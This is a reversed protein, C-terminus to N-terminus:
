PSLGVPGIAYVVHWYQVGTGVVTFVTRISGSPQGFAYGSADMAAQSNGHPSIWSWWHGALVYGNGLSFKATDIGLNLEGKSNVHHTAGFSRPGTDTTGGMLGVNWPWHCDDYDTGTCTIQFDSEELKVVHRTARFATAHTNGLKLASTVVQLQATQDLVGSVAPLRASIAHDYWALIDLKLHGGPFNGVLRLEGAQTGFGCGNVILEEGPEVPLAASLAQIQPPSCGPAQLMPKLQAALSQMALNDQVLQAQAQQLAPVTDLAPPASRGPPKRAAQQMLQDVQAQSLAAPDPAAALAPTRDPAKAQAKAQTMAQTTALTKAQAAPGGPAFGGGGGAAGLGPGAKAPGRLAAGGPGVQLLTSWQGGRVPGRATAASVWGSIRFEGAPWPKSAIVVSRGQGAPIAPLVHSHRGFACGADQPQVPKCDLWLRYAGPESAAAGTNDVRFDMQLSTGAPAPAPAHLMRAVELRPALAREPAPIRAPDAAQPPAAAPQRTAPMAPAGRPEAAAPPGLGLCLSLCLCLGPGPGPGPSLGLPTAARGAVPLRRSRGALARTCRSGSLGGFLRLLGFLSMPRIKM